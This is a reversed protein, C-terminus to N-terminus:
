KRLRIMFLGEPKFFLVLLFIVLPITQRLLSSVGFAVLTEVVGIVLGALFAGLFNGLGGMVAVIFAMVIYTTGVYPYIPFYTSILTGAVAACATGLGFTLAYVRKVDVGLIEATESDQGVARIAVGWYTKTLFIYLGLSMILSALFAVMRPFDIFLDQGLRITLDTYPTHVRRFDATWALVAGNQLVLLLGLTMLMQAHIPHKQIPRILTSQLIYGATFFVAFVIPLAILPDIGLISWLFFTLYMGLMLMEGHAFNVIRITGFIITLGISVLSYVAGTFLGTML